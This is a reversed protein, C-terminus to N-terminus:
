LICFLPFLGDFTKTESEGADSLSSFSFVTFNWVCLCENLRESPMEGALGQAPCPPYLTLLGPQRGPLVRKDLCTFM